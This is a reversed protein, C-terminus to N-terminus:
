YAYNYNELANARDYVKNPILIWEPLKYGNQHQSIASMVVAGINPSSTITALYEGAIIAKLADQSGNISVIPIHNMDKGAVKLAQLAGIGAEDSHVFIADFRTNNDTMIKEIAKVGTDSDFDGVVTESITLNSYKRLETEFATSRIKTYDLMTDGTIEIIQALEGNYYDALIKACLKGETSYNSSIRTLYHIDKDMVKNTDVLIIGIEMQEAEALIDKLPSLEKPSIVLYDPKDQLLQRLNKIQWQTSDEEPEYYILEYNHMKASEKFSMLQITRWPNSCDTQSFGIRIHSNDTKSALSIDEKKFDFLPYFIFLSICFLSLSFIFIIIVKMKNKKM